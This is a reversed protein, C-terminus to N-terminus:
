NIISEWLTIQKLKVYPYTAHIGQCGERDKILKRLIKLTAVSGELLIEGDIGSEMYAVDIGKELSDIAPLLDTVMRQIAFKRISEEQRQFSANEM